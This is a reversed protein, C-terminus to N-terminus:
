VLPEEDPPDEREEAEWRERMQRSRRRRVAAAALFLLTILLWLTTGSTLAPIWAYRRDVWRLWLGEAAGPGLGYARRFAEDFPLRRLGRLLEVGRARGFRADLFSLFSLSEAYALRAEAESAPFRLALSELPYLRDLLTAASLTAFDRLGETRAERMALGEQFWLPWAALDPYDAGLLVHTLEHLLLPELESPTEGAPVRVVIFREAPIAAGAIWRPLRRAWAERTLQPSGPTLLLVAVEAVQKLGLNRRVREHGAAALEAMARAYGADGATHLVAVPGSQAVIVPEPPEAAALDRACLLLLCLAAALGRGARIVPRM